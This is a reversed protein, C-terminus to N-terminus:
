GRWANMGGKVNTIRKYGLKRLLKSAKNSRMGSACIVIVEEEKSLLSTNETLEHLPINKFQRISRSKYEGATRVDIFQKGKIRLENKLQAAIIQRVGRAPLIHKLLFVAILAIFIYVISEM